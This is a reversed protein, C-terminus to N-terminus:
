KVKKSPIVSAEINNYGADFQVEAKAGYRQKVKLLAEILNDVPIWQKGDVISELEECNMPNTQVKREELVELRSTFKLTPLGPTWEWGEGAKIRPIVSDIIVRVQFNPERNYTQIYAETIEEKLQAETKKIM